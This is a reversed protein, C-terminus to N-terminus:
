LGGLSVRKPKIDKIARYVEDFDLSYDFHEKAQHRM